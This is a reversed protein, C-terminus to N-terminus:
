FGVQNVFVGEIPMAVERLITKKGGFKGPVKTSMLSARDRPSFMNPSRINRIFNGEKKPFEEVITKGSIIINSFKLNIPDRFAITTREKVIHFGNIM